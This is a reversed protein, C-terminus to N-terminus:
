WPTQEKAVSGCTRARVIDMMKQIHTELHSGILTKESGTKLWDPIMGTAMAIMEHMSHAAIYEPIAEILEPPLGHVGAMATLGQVFGRWIFEQVIDDVWVLDGTGEVRDVRLWLSIRLLFLVITELIAEISPLDKEQRYVFPAYRRVTILGVTVGRDHPQLVFDGAAHHWDLIAAASVPNFYYTLIAAAQRFADTVQSPSLWRHGNDDDWLRWHCGLPPKDAVHFEYFGDFWQALFMPLAPRGSDPRGQGYGFVLPIHRAAYDHNLQQLIEYEGRIVRRGAASAAVNLALQMQTDHLQVTILAPHYLAGHKALHVNLGHIDEKTVRRNLRNEVARVIATRGEHCLYDHAALFYDGYTPGDAALGTQGSDKRHAPLPM